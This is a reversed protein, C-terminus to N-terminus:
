IMAYVFSPSNKQQSIMLMLFLCVHTSFSPSYVFRQKNEPHMLISGLQFLESFPIFCRYKDPTAKGKDRLDEGGLDDAM